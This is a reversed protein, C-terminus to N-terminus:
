CGLRCPHLRRAGESIVSYRELADRVQSERQSSRLGPIDFAPQQPVEAPIEGKFEEVEQIKQRGVACHTNRMSRMGETASAAQDFWVKNFNTWRGLYQSCWLSRMTPLYSWAVATRKRQCSSRTNQLLRSTSQRRVHCYPPNLTSLLPLSSIQMPGKKTPDETNTQGFVDQAIRSYAIAHQSPAQKSFDQRQPRAEPKSLDQQNASIKGLDQQGGNGNIHKEWAVAGIGRYDSLDQVNRHFEDDAPTAKIYSSYALRPSQNKSLKKPRPTTTPHCTSDNM